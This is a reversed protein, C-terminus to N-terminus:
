EFCTARLESWATEVEAPLWLEEGTELKEVRTMLHTRRKETKLYQLRGPTQSQQIGPWSGRLQSRRTAQSLKQGLSPALLPPLRMGQEHRGDHNCWWPLPGRKRKLAPLRQRVSGIKDANWYEPMPDNEVRVGDTELTPLQPPTEFRVRKNVETHFLHTLSPHM